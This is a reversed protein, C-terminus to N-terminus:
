AGELVRVDATGSATIGYLTVPPGLEYSKEEGPSLPFGNTSTVTSDGLYVTVSGNNRVMMARRGALATAPIATATTTVTVATPLVSGSIPSIIM